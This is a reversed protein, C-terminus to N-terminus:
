MLTLLSLAIPLSSNVSQQAMLAMGLCIFVTLLLNRKM